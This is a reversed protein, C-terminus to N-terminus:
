HRDFWGIVRREFEEPYYASAKIHTAREPQWLENGSSRAAMLERSNGPQINTDGTGHIYLVPTHSQRMAAIPSAEELALGYRARLYLFAPEVFLASLSPPLGLQGSVRQYAVARFDTFAGEAVAARIRPEGALAQLLIAAGMSEGLGYVRGAGPEGAAYGVWRRVDDRERLGYTVEEGGSSGHGRNDPVLAAYGHKLLLPAFGATGERTDFHGHLVLVTGGNWQRPRFEWAKLRIGDAATIERESWTAANGQAIRDALEVHAAFRRRAPIHVAGESLYV